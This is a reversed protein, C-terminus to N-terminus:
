SKWKISETKDSVIAEGIKRCKEAYIIKKPKGIRFGEPLMTVEPPVFEQLPM